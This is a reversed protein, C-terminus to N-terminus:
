NKKQNLELLRLKPHRILLNLTLFKIPDYSVQKKASSESVEASSLAQMLTDITNIVADVKSQARKLKPGGVDLIQKQLDKVQAQM